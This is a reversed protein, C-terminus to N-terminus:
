IDGKISNFIEDTWEDIKEDSLLMRTQKFIEWFNKYHLVEKIKKKIKEEKWCLKLEYGKKQAELLKSIPTEESEFFDFLDHIREIEDEGYYLEHLEDSLERISYEKRKEMWKFVSKPLKIKEM